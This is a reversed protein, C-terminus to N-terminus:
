QVTIRAPTETGNILGATALAIGRIVSTLHAINIRKVDDCLSHYCPDDDDSSMITHAPVGNKAFSYNDSRMFLQKREDPEPKVKIGAGALGKSLMRPMNSINEGTIFVKKRGYMPVGIMEMNINAVIDDPNIYQVFDASGLLGLEEGAFACFLLTRENDDKKAFYKALELLATTGSANDNAGNFITDRSSAGKAKGKIVGVHDYHASFVVIEAPRTKGPIMGVVNYGVGPSWAPGALLKVLQPEGTTYVLLFNQQSEKAPRKFNVPFFLEGTRPQSSWILINEGRDKYRLFVDETITTDLKIVTFDSLDKSVPRENIDFYKYADYPVYGNNWLLSVVTPGVSKKTLSFPIHYGPQDQLPVLGAANFQQAIFTSAVSQQTTGNGRGQLEDSALFDITYKVSDESISPLLVQAAMSCHIFLLLITIQGKQAMLCFYGKSM